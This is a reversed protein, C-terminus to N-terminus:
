FLQKVAINMRADANAFMIHLNVVVSSYRPGSMVIIYHIITYDVVYNEMRNRLVVGSQM